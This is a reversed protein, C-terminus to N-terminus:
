KEDKLQEMHDNVMAQATDHCDPCLIHADYGRKKLISVSKEAVKRNYTYSTSVGNTRYRILILFVDRGAM